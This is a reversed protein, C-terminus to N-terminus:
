IFTQLCIKKIGSELEIKENWGLNNIKTVDLLKRYTGDPKSNDWLIEGKFGVVEKILMALDRITMDKGTGINIHTNRIEKSNSKGKLDEFDINNM